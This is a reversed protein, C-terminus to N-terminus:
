CLRFKRLVQKYLPQKFPVIATLLDPGTMWAWQSFEVDHATLNIADDPADLQVWLWKQKQGRYKGGWRKPIVDVPLDYPLWDKTEGMITVQDPNIGTEETLERLGAQQPSEGKDIGGQPMQWAPTTMDARQGAFILGATNTMVIGVCPRYPLAAIQEPTM